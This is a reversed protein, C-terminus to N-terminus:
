GQKARDGILVGLFPKVMQPAFYIPFQMLAFFLFTTAPVDNIGMVAILLGTNRLGTALALTVADGAGFRKWVMYTLVFCVICIAFALGTHLAVQAPNEFAATSVSETLAIAFIFFQVVGTGDLEPKHAALWASGVIRRIVLGVAMAGFLFVALRLTLALRDIPVAAGAVADAILPAVIPSVLMGLVLVALPLANSFGLLIAYAPAAVLPPAAAAIALGLLLGPEFAARGAVAVMAGIVLLPLFTNWALTAVIMAPNQALKRLAPLDARMMNITIFCFIIAGLFPKLPSALWPLAFGVILSLAFAQPGYRGLLALLQRPWHLV